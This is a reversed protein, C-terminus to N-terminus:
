CMDLWVLVVSMDGFMNETLLVGNLKRPNSVLVMAASDVLQHDFKLQPYEKTLTETVVKRWMRSTALVNAKDVSHIPLPPDAALAIQAAVRTIREVEPVSYICEDWAM